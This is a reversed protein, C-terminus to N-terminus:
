RTRQARTRRHTQRRQPEEGIPESGLLGNMREAEDRSRFVPNDDPSAQSGPRGPRLVSAGRSAADSDMFECTGLFDGHGVHDAVSDLGVLVTREKDPYGPPAHCVKVKSIDVVFGEPQFSPNYGAGAVITGDASVANLSTMWWFWADDIGQSVLFFQFDITGVGRIWITPYAYSLFGFRGVVVNGDDSIGIPTWFDGDYGGPPPPVQTFSGDPNRVYASANLTWDYLPDSWHYPSEGYAYGLVYSGDSTVATAEGKSAEAVYDPNDICVTTDPCSYSSNCSGGPNDGGVCTGPCYSDRICNGGVNGGDTCTGPCNWSGNCSQGANVGGTCVGAECAIGDLDCFGANNCFADDAWEPCGLQPDNSNYSCALGSEVCVKPEINGNGDIWSQVGDVWQAGRWFGNLGENWGVVLSGDNTVDIGRSMTVVGPRTSLHSLSSITENAANYYFGHAPYGDISILGTAHEANDAMGYIRLTTGYLDYIPDWLNVEGLWHSAQAVGNTIGDAMISGDTGIHCLSSASGVKTGWGGEMTWQVCYNGWPTPTAMFITGQPNM